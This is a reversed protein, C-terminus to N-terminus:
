LLGWKIVSLEPLQRSLSAYKSNLSHTYTHTCTALTLQPLSHVLSQAINILTLVMLMVALYALIPSQWDVTHTQTHVLLTILQVLQGM